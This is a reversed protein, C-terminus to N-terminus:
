IMGSRISQAKARSLVFKAAASWFEVAQGPEFWVAGGQKKHFLLFELLAAIESDTWAIRSGSKLNELPFTLKKRSSFQMRAHVRKAKPTQGSPSVVDRKTGRPPCVPSVSMTSFPTLLLDKRCAGGEAM